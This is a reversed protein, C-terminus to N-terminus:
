GEKQNTWGSDLNAYWDDILHWQKDSQYRWVVPVTAPKIDYEIADANMNFKMVANDPSGNLHSAALHIYAIGGPNIIPCNVIEFERLQMRRNAPWSSSVAFSASNGGTGPSRGPSDMNPGDLDAVTAVYHDSATYTKGGDNTVRVYCYYGGGIGTARYASMQGGWAWFPRGGSHCAVTGIMLKSFVFASAQDNVYRICLEGEGDDIRQSKTLDYGDMWLNGSQWSWYAPNSYKHYGINSNRISLMENTTLKGSDPYTRPFGYFQTKGAYSQGQPVLEWGM